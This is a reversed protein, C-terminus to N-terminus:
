LMDLKPKRSSLIDETLRYTMEDQYFSHPLKFRKIKEGGGPPLDRFSISYKEDWEDKTIEANEQRLAGM